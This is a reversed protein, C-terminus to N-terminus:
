TGSAGILGKKNLDDFIASISNSASTGDGVFLLGGARVQGNGVWLTRGTKAEILKATFATQRSYRYKPTATTTTTGYSTGNVSVTSMNGFSTATGSGSFGGSSQSSFITGAYQRMVGTDGVNIALVADVGDRALGQEIEANSYTRTPPFVQFADGAVVGRKRAEDVISTQISASLTPPATVYAVIRRIPQAPMERDAYGQMSTTVCGSLALSAIAGFVAVFRM